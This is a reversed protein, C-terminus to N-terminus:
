NRRLAKFGSYIELATSTLKSDPISTTFNHDSLLKNSEDFFIDGVEDIREIDFNFISCLVDTYDPEYNEPGFGIQMLNNHLAYQKIYSKILIIAKTIEM